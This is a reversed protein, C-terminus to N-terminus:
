KNLHILMKIAFDCESVTTPLATFLNDLLFQLFVLNVPYMYRYNMGASKVKTGEGFRKRSCHQAEGLKQNRYLEDIKAMYKRPDQNRTLKSKGRLRCSRKQDEQDKKEKEEERAMRIVRINQNM